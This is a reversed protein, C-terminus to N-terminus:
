SRREANSAAIGVRGRAPTEAIAAEAAQKDALVARFLLDRLGTNGRAATIARESLAHYEAAGTQQRLDAARRRQTAQKRADSEPMEPLPVDLLRAALDRGQYAFPFRYRCTLLLRSETDAVDFARIIAALPAEIAAKVQWHGSGQPPDLLAEFDDLVLVIPAGDATHRCPGTLLAHLARYLAEPDYGPQAPDVRARWEDCIPGAANPLQEAIEALLNPGDCRQYLVIRKLHPLREMIRVALSSKGQRGYGRVLVGAHDKRRFERLIAQIQRRRGVFDHRGAVEIRNGAAGRARIMAKRGADPATEVRAPGGRTLAGGGTPGLFLRALHWHRSPPGDPRCLLRLRAVAWAEEVTMDPQAAGQYFAAAFESADSDFVSNAWGLVTGFGAQVLGLALSDVEGGQGTQCASLFLLRPRRHPFAIALDTLRAPKAEGAEDELALLPEPILPPRAALGHCSLHLVDLTAARDWAATLEALTGTDEVFLDLGAHETEHLIAAEEAEFSLTSKGRPAVAMFMVGLRQNHDLPKPDTADGIRRLPAWMLRPDAALFVGGEAALEWPVELFQRAQADPQESTAFEAILPTDGGRHLATMWGGNQDLWDRIRQGLTLLDRRSDTRGAAERYSAIWAAFLEFDATTLRRDHPAASSRLRDGTLRLAVRRVSKM